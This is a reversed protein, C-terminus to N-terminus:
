KKVTDVAKINIFHKYFQHEPPLKDYWEIKQNKRMLLDLMKAKTFKIGELLPELKAEKAKATVSKQNKIKKMVSFYTNMENNLIELPGDFMEPDYHEYPDAKSM